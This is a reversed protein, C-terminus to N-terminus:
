WDVEGGIVESCEPLQLVLDVGLFGVLFLSLGGVGCELFLGFGLRLEEGICFDVVHEFLGPDGGHGIGDLADHLADDLVEDM